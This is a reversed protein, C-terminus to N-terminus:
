FPSEKKIIEISNSKSWKDDYVRIFSTCWGSSYEEQPVGIYSQLVSGDTARITIDYRIVTIAQPHEGDYIYAVACIYLIVCVCM